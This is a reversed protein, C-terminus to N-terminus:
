SLSVPRALGDRTRAEQRPGCCCGTSNVASPPPPVVESPESATAIVSAQYGADNIAEVLRTEDVSNPLYEVIAEENQLHVEVHIVGTLGDLARTVHRACGGCSMGSISLKTTQIFRTEAGQQRNM